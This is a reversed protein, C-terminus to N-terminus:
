SWRETGPGGTKTLSSRAQVIVVAHLWFGSITRSDPTAPTLISLHSQAARNKLLRESAARAHSSPLIADLPCSALAERSTRM